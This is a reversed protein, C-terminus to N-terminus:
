LSFFSNLISSTLNELEIKLLEVVYHLFFIVMLSATVLQM